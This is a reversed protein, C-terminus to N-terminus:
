FYVHLRFSFWFVKGRRRGMLVSIRSESRERDEAKKSKPADSDSEKATKRMRASDKSVSSEKDSQLNRRSSSGKLISPIGLSLVSAKKQATSPTLPSIPSQQVTSLADTRYGVHHANSSSTPSSSLAASGTSLPAQMSQSSSRRFFPISSPTLRKSATKSPSSQAQTDNRSFRGANEVHRRNREEGSSGEMRPSAISKQAPSMPPSPEPLSLSSLSVLSTESDMAGRKIGQWAEVSSKPSLAQQSSPSKPGLLQTSTQPVTRSSSNSPKLASNHRSPSASRRMGMFSWKKSPTKTVNAPASLEMFAISPSTQNLSERAEDHSKRTSATRKLLSHEADSPVEAPPFVLSTSSQPPTKFSSLDKPLPPVPPVSPANLIEASLLQSTRERQSPIDASHISSVDSGASNRRSKILSLRNSPLSVSTSSTGASLIASERSSSTPTGTYTSSTSGRKPTLSVRNGKKWDPEVTLVKAEESHSNPPSDAGVPQTKPDIHEQRSTPRSHVKDKAHEHHGSSNLRHLKATTEPGESTGPRSHNSQRSALGLSARSRPAKSSIGIGDLKRLVEATAEDDLSSWGEQTGRLLSHAVNPSALADKDRASSLKESSARISPGSTRRTHTSTVPSSPNGKSDGVSTKRTLTQSATTSGASTQRNHKISKSSSITKPEVMSMRMSNGRRKEKFSNVSSSSPLVALSHHKSARSEKESSTSDHNSANQSSLPNSQEFAFEDSSRKKAKRAPSYFASPPSSLPESLPTTPVPSSQKRSFPTVKDDRLPKRPYVIEEEGSEDPLSQFDKRTTSPPEDM